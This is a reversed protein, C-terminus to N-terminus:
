SQAVLEVGVSELHVNVQEEIELILAQQSQKILTGSRFLELKNKGVEITLKNSADAIKNYVNHRLSDINRHTPGDISFVQELTKKVTEDMENYRWRLAKQKKLKIHNDLATVWKDKALDYATEKKAKKAPPLDSDSDIVGAKRKRKTSEVTDPKENMMSRLQEIQERLGKNEDALRKNEDNVDNVVPVSVQNTVLKSHHVDASGDDEVIKAAVGISLYRFLKYYKADFAIIRDDPKKVRFFTLGNRNLIQEFVSHNKKMPRIRRGESDKVQGLVKGFDQMYEKFVPNKSEAPGNVNFSISHQFIKPQESRYVESGTKHGYSRITHKVGIEEIEDLERAESCSKRRTKLEAIQKGHEENEAELAKVRDMKKKKTSDKKASEAQRRLKRMLTENKKIKREYESGEGEKAKLIDELEKQKKILEKDVVFGQELFHNFKPIKTFFAHLTTTIIDRNGINKVLTGDRYTPAQVYILDDIKRQKTMLLYWQFGSILPRRFEEFKILSDILSKDQKLYDIVTHRTEM